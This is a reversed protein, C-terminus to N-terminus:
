KSTVACATASATLRTIQLDDERTPRRCTQSSGHLINHPQNNVYAARIRTEGQNGRARQLGFAFLGHPAGFVFAKLLGHAMVQLIAVVGHHALRCHVNRGAYGAVEHL